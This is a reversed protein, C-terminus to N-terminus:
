KTHTLLAYKGLVFFVVWFIAAVFLVAAIINLQKDTVDGM